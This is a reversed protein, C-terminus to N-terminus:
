RPYATRLSGDPNLTVEVSTEGRSGVPYGFDHTHITGDRPRGAADPTNRGGPTKATDEILEGIEDLDAYNSFTANGPTVGPSGDIHEDLVHQWGDGNFLNCNNNHVLVTTEGALVYYTHIGSITLDFTRQHKRFPHVAAVPIESGDATRITMGPELDGADVWRGESVSWFPHTSTAVLPHSGGEAALTIDVFHKDDETVITAAVEQVTTEGTAPDTVTVKDGVEVDEIPKTSGDAHAAALPEDRPRPRTAPRGASARAM